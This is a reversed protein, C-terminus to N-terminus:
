FLLNGVCSRELVSSQSRAWQRQAGRHGAPADFWSGSRSGSALAQAPHLGTSRVSLRRLRVEDRALGTRDTPKKRM